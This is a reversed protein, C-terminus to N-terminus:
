RGKVEIDEISNFGYRQIIKIVWAKDLSYVFALMGRIYTVPMEPEKGKSLAYLAARLVRKKERGISAAGTNSLTLGTLTRRHKRSVNVTKAENLSLHLYKMSTVLLRVFEYVVDLRKPESTSLAIDDAYRTYVVHSALCYEALAKDFEFMLVNSIFPSSPAGISLHLGREGRRHRCLLQCIMWKEVDSYNCNAALIRKIAVSSLSPFFNTFDLKMVYKSSAHPLAHDRISRGDRYAKASDHVPLDRLEVNILLRQFYKLEASPQSILRQGRGNRKEIYHEKYRSPATRLLGLLEGPALPSQSLLRAFLPQELINM